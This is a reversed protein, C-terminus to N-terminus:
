VAERYFRNLEKTDYDIQKQMEKIQADAKQKEVITRVKENKMNRAM